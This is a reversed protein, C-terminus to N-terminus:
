CLRLDLYMCVATSPCVHTFESSSKLETPADNRDIVKIYDVFGDENLDLNNVKSDSSNLLREFEEPSSSKKFLELAGELSFNDGPVEWDNVQAQTTIYGLLVLVM